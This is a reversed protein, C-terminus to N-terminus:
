AWPFSSPYWGPIDELSKGSVSSRYAARLDVNYWIPSEPDMTGVYIRISGFPNQFVIPVSPRVGDRIKRNLRPYPGEYCWLTRDSKVTVTFGQFTYKKVVFPVAFAILLM